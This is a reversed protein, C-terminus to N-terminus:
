NENYLFITNTVRRRMEKRCQKGVVVNFDHNLLMRKLEIKLIKFEMKNQPQDALNFTVSGFYQSQSQCMISYHLITLQFLIPGGFNSIIKPVRDFDISCFPM